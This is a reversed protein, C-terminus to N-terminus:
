SEPFHINYGPVKLKEIDFNPSYKQLDCESVGFLHPNLEKVVKKIESVKNQLKRINLHYVRVGKIRGNGNIYRAFFNGTFNTWVKCNWDELKFYIIQRTVNQTKVQIQCIDYSDYLASSGETNLIVITCIILAARIWSIWSNTPNNVNKVNVSNEIDFYSYKLFKKNKFKQSFTGICQRYAVLDIM